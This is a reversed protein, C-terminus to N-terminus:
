MEMIGVNCISPLFDTKMETLYIKFLKEFDVM